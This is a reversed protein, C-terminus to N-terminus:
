IYHSIVHFNTDIEFLKQMLDNYVCYAGKLVVLVHLENYGGYDTAIKKAIEGIRELIQPRPVIVYDIASKNTLPDM